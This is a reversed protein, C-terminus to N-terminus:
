EVHVQIYRSKQLISKALSAADTNQRMINQIIIATFIALMAWHMWYIFVLYKGRIYLVTEKCSAIIDMLSLGM